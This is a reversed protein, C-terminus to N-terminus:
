GTAFLGYCFARLLFGTFCAFNIFRGKWSADLQHSREGTM